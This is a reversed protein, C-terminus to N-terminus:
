FVKPFPTQQDNFRNLGNQTWQELSLNSPSPDALPKTTAPTTSPASTEFTSLNMQLASNSQTM